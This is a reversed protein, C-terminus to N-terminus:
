KSISRVIGRVALFPYALAQNESPVCVTAFVLAILLAFKVTFVAEVCAYACACTVYLEEAQAQAQAQAKTALLFGPKVLPNVHGHVTIRHRVEKKEKVVNKNSRNFM